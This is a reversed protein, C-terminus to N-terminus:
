VQYVKCILIIEDSEIINKILGVCGDKLVFVNDPFKNSSNWRGIKLKTFQKGNINPLLPGEFHEGYTKFSAVEQENRNFLPNSHIEATRKIVQQLVLATNQSLKKVKQLHNEFVYASFNELYELTLCTM